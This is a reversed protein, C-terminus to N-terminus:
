RGLALGEGIGFVRASASAAPGDFNQTSKFQELRGDSAFPKVRDSLAAQEVTRCRNSGPPWVVDADLQELTTM